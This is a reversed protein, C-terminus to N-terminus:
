LKMDCVVVKANTGHKVSCIAAPILLLADEKCLHITEDHFVVDAEGEACFILRHATNEVPIESDTSLVYMKGECHERCMLNFDCVKGKASSEWGGDFVDIDEYPQMLLDYHGEHKVQASGNLMLLHRCVGPLATYASWEDTDAMATSIRYLFNRDAYQADQPWICIQSSSGGAWLSVKRESGKILTRM